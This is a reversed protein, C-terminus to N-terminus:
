EELINLIKDILGADNAAARASTEPKFEKTLDKIEKDTIGFFDRPKVKGELTPHDQFGTIHAFAKLINNDGTIGITATSSSEDLKDISGLMDGTLTLNVDSSKGYVKFALSNQYNKSYKAFIKNDVDRSAQTRKVILDIAAQLFAERIEPVKHVNGLAAKLDIKQSVESQSIKRSKIPM